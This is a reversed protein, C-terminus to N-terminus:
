ETVEPEPEPTVVELAIPTGVTVSGDQNITYEFPPTYDAPSLATSDITLVCQVAAAHDRFIISANTGFENFIEQPTVEPNYWVNRFTNKTTNVLQHVIFSRAKDIQTAIARARNEVTPTILSM